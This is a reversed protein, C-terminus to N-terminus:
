VLLIESLNRGISVKSRKKKRKLRKLVVGAVYPLKWVLPQIPAAKVVVVAIGSGFRM